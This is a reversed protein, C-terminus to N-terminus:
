MISKRLPNSQEEDRLRILIQWGDPHTKRFLLAHIYIQNELPAEGVIM